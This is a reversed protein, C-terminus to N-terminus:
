LIKFVVCYSSIKYQSFDRSVFHPGMYHTHTHTHTPQTIIREHVGASYCWSPLGNTSVNNTVQHQDILLCNINCLCWKGGRSNYVDDTGYRIRM